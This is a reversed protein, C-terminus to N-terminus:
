EWVKDKLRGFATNARAIRYAVEEDINASRSLTSGLYVFKDAVALRQGNVTIHPEIYSAAPAPQHLVEAECNRSLLGFDQM